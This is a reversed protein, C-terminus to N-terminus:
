TSGILAFNLHDFGSASRIRPAELSLPVPEPHAIKFLIPEAERNLRFGHMGELGVEPRSSLRYGQSAVAQTSGGHRHLSAIFSKEWAMFVLM